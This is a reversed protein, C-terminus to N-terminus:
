RGLFKRKTGRTAQSAKINGGGWTLGSKREKLAFNGDSRKIKEVEGEPARSSGSERERRQREQRRGEMINLVLFTVLTASVLLLVLVIFNRSRLQGTIWGM